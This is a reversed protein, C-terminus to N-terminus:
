GISLITKLQVFKINKFNRQDKLRALQVSLVTIPRDRETRISTQCPISGLVKPYNTLHDVLEAMLVLLHNFGCFNGQNEWMLM